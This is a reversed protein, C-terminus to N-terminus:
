YLALEEAFKIRRIIEAHKKYIYSSSYNMDEAIEELTMGDVYKMKLIRNDLGRFKSILNKLKYMDNMANALEYEIAEIREEVKAGESEATLRVDRLDGSVWRKLEAKTKDLNYDLYAIREELKQYDKLWDFM